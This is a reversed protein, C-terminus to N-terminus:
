APMCMGKRYWKTMGGFLVQLRDRWGMYSPMAMLGAKALPHQHIHGFCLSSYHKHIPTHGDQQQSGKAVLYCAWSLRHTSSHGCPPFPGATPAFGDYVMGTSWIFQEASGWM